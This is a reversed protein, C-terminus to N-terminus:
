QFAGAAELEAAREPNYWWFDLFGLDYPPLTEPYEFMDYYAVTHAGKYWQPVRFYEARLVRDLARVAIRLDDETAAAKVHEILADIAPSHVGAKNFVSIEWSESGFYQELGGGPVNSMPYHATVFDFDFSRERNVAQANDVRNHVADVGLARLNEVYPNLVRDFTQSDNLFEITLVDGQANRRMGDDGVIWGAEDLLGSAARLNRRDLQRTGSMTASPAESDLVGPPLDAALPELLALEEVSPLGSAARDSNEWFSDGRAYIGYFLTENSWEFNFMLGIAQRVRRDQFQPRRLNFVFSQGPPINGNALEDKIVWGKDIAPFDYATAWIKSSAESRFTYSGGKFGEFASQYDAYYEVRIRDFNHRGINIPLDAGWHDPNRRYTISQGAEIEDVVYPGSGIISVMSSEELDLEASVYHAQSFIPLSGVLSPLDRTPIDPKFTFKVQYPALAEASDVKQALQARFSPLGKELLLEYSFVVDSATLASGDSFRAETRMDFIVWSRDEPYTLSEAVWAYSADLEDATSDLLREYLMSSLAGSRGKTSYPNMSDFSGPAWTSIEGGKPADPNVYPLYGYDAPLNLNGFPSIGHATITQEDSKVPLALVILSMTALAFGLFRNKDQKLVRATAIRTM